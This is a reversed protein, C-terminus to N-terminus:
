LSSCTPQSWNPGCWEASLPVSGFEQEHAKERFLCHTMDKCGLPVGTLGRGVEYLLKLLGVIAQALRVWCLWHNRGM